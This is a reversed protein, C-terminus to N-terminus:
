WGLQNYAEDIWDGWLGHEKAFDKMQEKDCRTARNAAMIGSGIVAGAWGAAAIGLVVTTGKSPLSAKPNLHLAEDVVKISGTVGLFTGYVDHPTPLGMSDLNSEINYRFTEIDFKCLGM